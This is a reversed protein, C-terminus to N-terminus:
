TRSRVAEVAFRHVENSHRSWNEFGGSAAKCIMWPMSSGRGDVSHVLAFCGCPLDVMVSGHEVFPAMMAKGVKRSCDNSCFASLEGPDNMPEPQEFLM